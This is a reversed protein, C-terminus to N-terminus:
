RAIDGPEALVEASTIEEELFELPEPTYLRM